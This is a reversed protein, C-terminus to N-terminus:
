VLILGKEINQLLKTNKKQEYENKTLVYQNLVNGYLKVCDISLDELSMNIKEKHEKSKVQVFLDIDSSSHETNKSMSGFIIMKEVVKHNLKAWDKLMHKLHEAPSFLSQKGFLKDAVFYAYSAPRATWVVSKGARRNSVLSIDEFDKLIYIAMSHSIGCIRSVERGTMMFGPKIVYKLVAIKAPSNFMETLNMNLRM